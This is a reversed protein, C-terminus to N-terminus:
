DSLEQEIRNTVGHIVAWWVGERREQSKTIPFFLDSQM